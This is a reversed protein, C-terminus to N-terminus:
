VWATIVFQSRLLGDLVQTILLIHVIRAVEVVLHGRLIASWHICAVVQDKLAACIAVLHMIGM